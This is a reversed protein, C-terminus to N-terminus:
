QLDLLRLDYREHVGSPSAFQDKWTTMYEPCKKVVALNTDLVLDYYELYTDGISGDKRFHLLSAAAVLAEELEWRACATQDTRRFYLANMRADVSNLRDVYRHLLEHLVTDALGERLYRLFNEDDSPRQYIPRSGIDPMAGLITERDISIAPVNSYLNVGKDKTPAADLVTIGAAIYLPSTDFSFVLSRERNKWDLGQLVPDAPYQATDVVLRQYATPHGHRLLELARVTFFVQLQDVAGDQETMLYVAEDYRYVHREGDLWAINDKSVVDNTTFAGSDNPHIHGLYELPVGDLSFPDCLVGPMPLEDPGCTTLECTVWQLDHAALQAPGVTPVAWSPECVMGTDGGTSDPGTSGATGTTSDTGTDGGTSAGSTSGTASDSTTPASTGATDSASAGSSTDSTSASATSAGSTSEGGQTSDGTQPAGCGPLTLCALVPVLKSFQM